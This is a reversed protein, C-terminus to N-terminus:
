DPLLGVPGVEEVRGRGADAEVLLKLEKTAVEFVAEVHVGVDRERVRVVCVHPLHNRAKDITEM